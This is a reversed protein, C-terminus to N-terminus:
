LPGKHYVCTIDIIDLIKHPNEHDLNNLRFIGILALFPSKNRLGAGRKDQCWGRKLQTAVGRKCHRWVGKKNHQWRENIM